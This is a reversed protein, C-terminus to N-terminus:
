ANKPEGVAAREDLRDRAVRRGGACLDVLAPDCGVLLANEQRVHEARGEEVGVYLAGRNRLWHAPRASLGCM